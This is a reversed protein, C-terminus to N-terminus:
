VLVVAQSVAPMVPKDLKTARKTVRKAEPKIVRKIAQRM